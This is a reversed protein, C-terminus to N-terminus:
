SCKSKKSIKSLLINESRYIKNEKILNKITQEIRDSEINILFQNEIIYHINEDTIKEKTNYIVDIVIAQDGYVGIESALMHSLQITTSFENGSM